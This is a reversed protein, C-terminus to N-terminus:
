DQVKLAESKGRYAQRLFEIFLAFSGFPIVLLVYATPIRAIGFELEHNQFAEWTAQTSYWTIILSAIACVASVVRHLVVRVRTSMLDSVLDMRVHGGERLLWPIGLFAIWVISFEAVEMLGPIPRYLFYRTVVETSIGFMVMAIIICALVAFFNLVWDFVANLKGIM